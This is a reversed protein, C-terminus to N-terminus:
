LRESSMLAESKTQQTLTEANASSAVDAAPQPRLLFGAFSSKCSM